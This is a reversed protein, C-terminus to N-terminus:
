KVASPLPSPLILSHQSELQWGALVGPLNVVIPILGGATALAIALIRMLQSAFAKPGKKRYYWDIAEHAQREAFNRVADLSTAVDTPAWSLHDVDAVPINRQQRRQSAPGLNKFTTATAM